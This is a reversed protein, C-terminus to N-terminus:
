LTPEDRRLYVGRYGWVRRTQDDNEVVNRRQRISGSGASSFLEKHDPNADRLWNLMAKSLNNHFMKAGVNHTSCWSKYSAVLDEVKLFVDTNPNADFGVCDEFFELEKQVTLRAAKVGRQIIGDPAVKFGEKKVRHYGCLAWNFIGQIEKEILYAAFDRIRNEPAIRQEWWLVLMRRWLGDTRDRWSPMSNCNMAFKCSLRDTVASKHKRDITIPDGGTIAKLVGEGVREIENADGILNLMSGILPELGFRNAPDFAELGIAQVNAEGLLNRLIACWVSKGNSGDGINLMFVQEPNASVFCYGAWAQLLLRAEETPQWQTLADEFLPCTAELEFDYPLACLTWFDPSHPIVGDAAKDLNLIGNRFAVYASGDNLESRGNLWCPPRKEDGVLTLARMSEEANTVAGSTPNIGYENLKLAIQGRV